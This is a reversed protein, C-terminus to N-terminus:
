VLTGVRSHGGKFALQALLAKHVVILKQSMSRLTQLAYFLFAGCVSM